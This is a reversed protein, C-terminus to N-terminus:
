SFQTQPNADDGIQDERIKEGYRRAFEYENRKHRNDTFLNEDANELEPVEHIPVEVIMAEFLQALDAM